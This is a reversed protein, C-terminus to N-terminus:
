KDALQAPPTSNIELTVPRSDLPAASVNISFNIPPANPNAIEQAKVKPFRHSMLIEAARVRDGTEVLFDGPVKNAMVRFVFEIPDGYITAYTDYREAFADLEHQQPKIARRQPM